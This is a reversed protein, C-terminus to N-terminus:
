KDLPRGTSKYGGDNDDVEPDDEDAVPWEAIHKM